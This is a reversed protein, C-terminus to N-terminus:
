GPISSRDGHGNAFVRSVLGIPQYHVIIFCYFCNYIIIFGM